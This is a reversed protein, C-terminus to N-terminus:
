GDKGGSEANAHDRRAAARGLAEALRRIAERAPEPPPAPANM